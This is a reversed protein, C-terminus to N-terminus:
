KTTGEKQEKLMADIDRAFRVALTVLYQKGYSYRSLIQNGYNTGDRAVNLRTVTEKEGPYSVVFVIGHEAIVTGEYWYSGSATYKHSILNTPRKVSYKFTYPKL